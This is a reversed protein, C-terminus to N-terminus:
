RVAGTPIIFYASLSNKTRIDICNIQIGNYQLETYQHM